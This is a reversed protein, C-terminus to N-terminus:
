ILFVHLQILIQMQVIRACWCIYMYIYIYAELIWIYYVRATYLCVYYIHMYNQIATKFHVYLLTNQSM